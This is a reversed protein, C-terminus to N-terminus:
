AIKELNIKLKKLIKLCYLDIKSKLLFIKFILIKYNSWLQFNVKFGKLVKLFNKFKFNYRNKASFTKVFKYPGLQGGGGWLFSAVARGVYHVSNIYNMYSLQYSIVLFISNRNNIYAKNKWDTETKYWGFLARMLKSCISYIVRSPPTSYLVEFANNAAHSNFWLRASPANVIFSRPCVLSFQTPM